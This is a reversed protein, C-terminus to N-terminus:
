RGEGGAFMSTDTLLEERLEKMLEVITDFNHHFFSFKELTDMLECYDTDHSDSDRVSLKINDRQTSNASTDSHTPQDPM